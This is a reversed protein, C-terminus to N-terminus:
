ERSGIPTAADHGPCQSGSVTGKRSAASRRPSYGDREGPPCRRNSVPSTAQRSLGADCGSDASSAYVLHPYTRAVSARAGSPRRELRAIARAAPSDAAAGGGARLGGLCAYTKQFAETALM